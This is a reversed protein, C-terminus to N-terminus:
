RATKSSTKRADLWKFPVGRKADDLCVSVIENTGDIKVKYKNKVQDYDVIVGVKTVLKKSKKRDLPLKLSLRRNFNKV